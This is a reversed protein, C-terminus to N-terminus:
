YSISHKSKLYNEVSARDTSSLTSFYIIHEIPRNDYKVASNTTTSFVDQGGLNSNFTSTVTKGTIKVFTMTPTGGSNVAQTITLNKPTSYTAQAYRGPLAEAPYTGTYSWLNQVYVRNITGESANYVQQYHYVQGVNYSGAGGPGTNGPDPDYQYLSKSYSATAMVSFMTTTFSGVSNKYYGDPFGLLTWSTIINNSQGDTYWYDPTPGWSTDWVLNTNPNISGNPWNGILFPSPIM